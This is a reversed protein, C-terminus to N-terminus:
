QDHPRDVLAALARLGDVLPECARNGRLTSVPKERHARGRGAAPKPIHLTRPHYKQQSPAGAEVAANAPRHEVPARGRPPEARSGPSSSSSSASPTEVRAIVIAAGEAAHPRPERLHARRRAAAGVGVVPDLVQEPEVHVAGVPDQGLKLLGLQAVRDAEACFRMRRSRTSGPWTSAHRESSPLQTQVNTSAFAVSLRPEILRLRKPQGPQRRADPHQRHLGGREHHFALHQVPDLLARFCSSSSIASSVLKVAHPRASTPSCIPMSQAVDGNSTSCNRIPIFTSDLMPQVVQHGVDGVAIREDRSSRAPAGSPTRRNSCAARGSPPPPWAVRASRRAIATPM